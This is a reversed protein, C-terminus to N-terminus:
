APRCQSKRLIIKKSRSKLTLQQAETLASSFDFKQKLHAPVKKWERQMADVKGIWKEPAFIEPVTKSTFKTAASDSAAKFQQLAKLVKEWEQQNLRTHAKEANQQRMLIDLIQEIDQQM